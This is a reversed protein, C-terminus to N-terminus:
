CVVLANASGLTRSPDLQSRDSLPSRLSFSWSRSQEALRQFCRRRQNVLNILEQIWKLRCFIGLRWGFCSWVFGQDEGLWIMDFWIIRFWILDFWMKGSRREEGRRQKGDMRVLMGARTRRDKGWRGEVGGRKRVKRRDSRRETEKREVSGVRGM